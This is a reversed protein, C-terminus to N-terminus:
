LNFPNPNPNYLPNQHPFRGCDKGNTPRVLADADTGAPASPGPNTATPGTQKKPGKGKRLSDM